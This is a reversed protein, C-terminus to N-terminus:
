SSVVAAQDGDHDDFLACLEDAIVTREGLLDDRVPQRGAEVKDLFAAILTHLQDRDAVTRDAFIM